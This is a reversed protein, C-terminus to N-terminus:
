GGGAAAARGYPSALLCRGGLVPEFAVGGLDPLTGEVLDGETAESGRYGVGRVAEREHKNGLLSM